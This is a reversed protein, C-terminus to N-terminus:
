HEYHRGAPVSFRSDSTRVLYHRIQVIKLFGNRVESFKPAGGRDVPRDDHIRRTIKMASKGFNRLISTSM